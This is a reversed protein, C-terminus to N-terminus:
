SPFPSERIPGAPAIEDLFVSPSFEGIFTHRETELFQIRPGILDGIAEDRKPQFGALRTASSTSSGGQAQNRARTGLARVQHRRRKGDMEARMLVRM